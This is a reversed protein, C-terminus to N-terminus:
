KQIIMKQSSIRRGDVKFLLQYLGSPLDNGNLQNIGRDVDQTMLERGLMDMIVLQGPQQDSSLAVSFTGNNPNPFLSILGAEDNLDNVSVTSVPYCASTDVCNNETIMLAYSGGATATFSQATAGAVPLSSNGCDLWQYATAGGEDATLTMGSISVNSNATGTTVVVATSAAYCGLTDIGFVAYTGGATITISFATDGTSWMYETAPSSSLILSENNCLHQATNPSLLPAVPTCNGLRAIFLDGAYPNGSIPATMILSTSGFGANGQIFNGTMFLNGQGDEDLAAISSKGSLTNGQLWQSKGDTDFKTVFINSTGSAYFSRGNFSVGGSFSGGIYIDGTKDSCVSSFGATYPANIKFISDWVIAGASNYKVLFNANTSASVSLPFFHQHTSDFLLTDGQFNGIQFMNGQPDVTLGGSGSYGFGVGYQSGCYSLKSWAFSLNSDFKAVFAKTNGGGSVTDLQWVSTNYVGRPYNGTIYVNLDADVGMGTVVTPGLRIISSFNGATDMKALWYSSAWDTGTDIFIGDITDKLSYGTVLMHTDDWKKIGMFSTLTASSNSGKRKLWIVHGAPDYKAIYTRLIASPNVITFGDLALTGFFEGTIYFNGQADVAATKLTYAQAPMKKAWLVNGAPGHKAIYYGSSGATTLTIAGFQVTSAFVGWSFINGSPDCMLQKGVENNNGGARQAWNWQPTQAHASLTSFLVLVVSFFRTFSFSISANM